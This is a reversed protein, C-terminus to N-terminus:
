LPRVDPEVWGAKAEASQLVGDTYHRWPLRSDLLEPHAGLLADLTAAEPTEGMARWLLEAWARTMTEHYKGTAGLATAYERILTRIRELGAERGHARLCLWALRLHARHGFEEGPHTAAEVAALFEADTLGVASM